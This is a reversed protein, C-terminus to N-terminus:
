TKVGKTLSFQGPTALLSTFQQLCITRRAAAIQLDPRRTRLLHKRSRVTAAVRSVTQINLGRPARPTFLSFEVAV